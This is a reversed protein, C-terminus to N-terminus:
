ADPPEDAKGALDGLLREVVDRLRASPGINLGLGLLVYDRMGTNVLSSAAKGELLEQLTPGGIEQIGELMELEELDIVELPSVDASQLISDAALRQHLLTITVPNVPFGESAVVVPFYRRRRRAPHGTLRSEDEKLANITGEVQRAEDIIKGLDKMIAEDSTGSVTARTPQSTTVELVVWTDSYEIAADAKKRGKKSFAAELASDDYLRRVGAAGVICHRLVQLAYVETSHELCAQIPKGRQPEGRQKFGEKVDFLPLWGFIRAVVLAPDIVLFSGDTLRILPYQEFTSISWMMGHEDLEARVLPELASSDVCILGLVTDIREQSWGLTTLYDSPHRYRGGVAAGWLGAGILTLDDLRVGTADKFAAALDVMLPDGAHELPIDRWRQVFRAIADVDNRRSNFLQNAVIERGLRGPTQTVVYPSMEAETPGLDSAILLMHAILNPPGTDTPPALPSLLCALKALAFLAQPVIFTTHPERLLNEARKAVEPALFLRVAELDLSKRTTDPRRQANVLMAVFILVDDLGVQPMQREVFGPPVPLDPFLEAATMYKLIQDLPIAPQLASQPVLLGSATPVFTTTIASAASGAIKLQDASPTALYSRLEVPENAAFQRTLQDLQAHLEREDM